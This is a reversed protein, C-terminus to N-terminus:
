RARITISGNSSRLRGTHTGACFRIQASTRHLRMVTAGGAECVISGNSTEAALSQDFAPGVELTVSGNSTRVDVPGSAEAALRVRVSGNSTEVCASAVELLEVRGNSTKAVVHGAYDAVHIAGNSTTIMAEGRMGQVTVPGNSTRLTLGDTDPLVVEIAAGEAAHRVGGPWQVHVRLTGEHDRNAVLVAQELREQSVARVSASVLVEQGEGRLVTISGNETRVDLATGEAVGVRVSRSGQYPASQWGCGGDMVVVCSAGSLLALILVGSGCAAVVRRVTGM